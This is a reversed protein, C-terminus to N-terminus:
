PISTAAKPGANLDFVYLTSAGHTYTAEPAPLLLRTHQLPRSRLQFYRSQVRTGLIIVPLSRNLM